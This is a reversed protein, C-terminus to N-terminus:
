LLSRWSRTRRFSGANQFTNPFTWSGRVFIFERLDESIWWIWKLHLLRYDCPLDKPVPSVETFADPFAFRVFFPTALGLPSVELYKMDRKHFFILSQVSSTIIHNNTADSLLTALAPAVPLSLESASTFDFWTLFTIIKLINQNTRWIRVHSWSMAWNYPCALPDPFVFACAFTSKPAPLLLLPSIRSLDMRM